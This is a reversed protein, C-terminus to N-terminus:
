RSGADAPPPDDRARRTIAGDSEGAGEGSDDVMTGLSSWDSERADAQVDEQAEHLSQEDTQQRVDREKRRMLPADRFAKRQLYFAYALSLAFMMEAIQSLAHPNWKNWDLFEAMRTAQVFAYVVSAIILVRWSGGFEGTRLLRFMDIALVAAIVSLCFAFFSLLGIYDGSAGTAM